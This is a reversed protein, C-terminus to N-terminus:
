APHFGAGNVWGLQGQDQGLTGSLWLTSGPGPAAGIPLFSAPLLSLPHWHVGDPSEEVPLPPLLPEAEVNFSATGVYGGPVALISELTTSSGPHFANVRDWTTGGNETQYVEVMRPGLGVHQTYAFAHTPSSFVLSEVVSSNPLRTARWAGGQDVELLNGDGFAISGGPIVALVGQGQWPGPTGGGTFM